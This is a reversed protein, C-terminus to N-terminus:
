RWFALWEILDLAKRALFLLASTDNLFVDAAVLGALLLALVAAMGNTM